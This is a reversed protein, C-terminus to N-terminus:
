WATRRMLTPPPPSGAAAGRTTNILREKASSVRFMARMMLGIALAQGTPPPNDKGHDAINAKQEARDQEGGDGARGLSGAAPMHGIKSKGVMKGAITAIM